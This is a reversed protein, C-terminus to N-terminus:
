KVVLVACPATRILNQSTGVWIRGFARGHGMFGVVLLDYQGERVFTVISEVEHGPRISCELKVGKLAARAKCQSALQGYYTDETEKAESAELMTQAHRPLNEEVSIMYLETQFCSALEVACDFAKRAGDSGDNAIVIKRFM